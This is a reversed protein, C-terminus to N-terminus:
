CINFLLNLFMGCNYKQVTVCIYHNKRHGWILHKTEHLTMGM